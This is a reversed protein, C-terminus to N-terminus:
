NALLGGALQHVGGTIFSADESCVSAVLGAVEEPEQLARTSKTHRDDPRCGGGKGPLLGGIGGGTATSPIWRETAPSSGSPPRGMDNLPAPASGGSPLALAPPGNPPILQIQTSRRNTGPAVYKGRQVRVLEARKPAGALFSRRHKSYHSVVIAAALHPRREILNHQIAGAPHQRVVGVMRDTFPNATPRRDIASREDRRCGLRRTENHEV